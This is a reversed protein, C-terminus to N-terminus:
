LDRCLRTNLSPTAAQGQTDWLGERRPGAEAGVQDPRDHELLEVENGVAGPLGQQRAVWEAQEGLDISARREIVKGGSNQHPRHLSPVSIRRLGAQERNGSTHCNDYSRLCAREGTSLHWRSRDLHTPDHGM